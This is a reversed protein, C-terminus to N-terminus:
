DLHTLLNVWLEKETSASLSNPNGVKAYLVQKKLLNIMLPLFHNLRNFFVKM